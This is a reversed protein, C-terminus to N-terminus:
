KTLICVINIPFFETSKSIFFYLGHHWGRPSAHLINRRTDGSLSTHTHMSQISMLKFIHLCKLETYTYHPAYTRSLKADLSRDGLLKGSYLEDSIKDGVGLEEDVGICDSADPGESETDVCPSDSIGM